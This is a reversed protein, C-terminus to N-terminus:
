PEGRAELARYGPVRDYFGAVFAPNSGVVRAGGEDCIAEIRAAADEATLGPEAIGDTEAYFVRSVRGGGVAFLEGSVTCREHALYAVFAAVHDTTTLARRAALAAGPKDSAATGRTFAYPAIVNARIGHPEGAVAVSRGLALTAGKSMAYAIGGPLGFLGSAITLVVRGHRQERLHPWAARLVNVSHTPEVRLHREVDEPATAELDGYSLIGASSVVVDLRGYAEVARAVAADAVAPEALDGPHAVAEGGAAAIEDAVAQAVAPDAGTGDLACGLDAVVVKAGRAALERAHARGLGRGGGTVLAVRGDFRLKSM